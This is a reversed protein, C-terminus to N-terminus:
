GGNFSTNIQKSVTALWPYIFLLMDCAFPIMCLITITTPANEIKRKIQAELTSEIAKTQDELVKTIESAEVKSIALLANVLPFVESIGVSEKFNWIAAQQDIQWKTGLEIIHPKLLKLTRGARLIIERIDANENVCLSLRQSFKNIEILYETQRKKASSRIILLPMFWMVVSIIIIKLLLGVWNGITFWYLGQINPVLGIFVLIGVFFSLSLQLIKFNIYSLSKPLDALRATELFNREKISIELNDNKNTKQQKERNKYRDIMLSIRSTRSIKFKSLVGFWFIFVGILFLILSLIQFLTINV